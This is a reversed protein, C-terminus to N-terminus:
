VEEGETFLKSSYGFLFSTKKLSSSDEWYNQFVSSKHCVFFDSYLAGLLLCPIHTQTNLTRSLMVLSINSCVSSNFLQPIRTGTELSTVIHLSRPIYM